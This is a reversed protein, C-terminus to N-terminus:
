DQLSSPPRAAPRRRHAQARRRQPGAAHPRTATEPAPTSPPTVAPAATKDKPTHIIGPDLSGTTLTTTAPPPPPPPPRPPPRPAPPAPATRTLPSRPAAPAMALRPSRHRGACGPQRRPNAAHTRPLLQQLLQPRDRERDGVPHEAAHGLGLVHHLLRQQPH